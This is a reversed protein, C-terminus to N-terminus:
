QLLAKALNRQGARYLVLAALAIVVTAICASALIASDPTTGELMIGRYMTLFGAIPHLYLFRTLESEIASIDYFIGSAFFLLTFINEIIKRSDPFFPPLMALGTGLAFIFALNLALVLPLALYAAGFQGSYLVAFVILLALVVLFRLSASLVDSIPFIWAPLKVQTIIAKASVLSQSAKKVSSDIWRWFVFGVLLFGAFDPGGRLLLVGFVFYLVAMQLAPELVWWLVGMSLQRNENKAGLLVRYVLLDRYNSINNV